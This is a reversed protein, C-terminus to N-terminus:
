QIGQFQYVCARLYDVKVVGNLLPLVNEIKLPLNHHRKEGM